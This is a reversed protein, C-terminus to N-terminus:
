LQSVCCPSAFCFSAKSARTDLTRLAERTLVLKKPARPQAVAVVNQEVSTAAPSLTAATSLGSSAVLGAAVSAAILKKM